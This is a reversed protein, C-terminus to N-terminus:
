NKTKAPSERTTIPPVRYVIGYRVQGKDGEEDIKRIIAELETGEVLHPPYTDTIIAKNETFVTYNKFRCGKEFSKLTARKPYLKIELRSIDSFGPCDEDICYEKAPFYVRQCGHCIQVRIKGENLPKIEGIVRKPGRSLHLYERLRRIKIVYYDKWTLIKKRQLYDQITPALNKKGKIGKKTRVWTALSAAWSGYSIALIDEGPEAMDLVNSLNLPTNGAYANGIWRSLLTPHLKEKREQESLTLVRLSDLVFKKHRKNIYEFNEAKKVFAEPNKRMESKIENTLEEPHLFTEIVATPRFTQEVLKAYPSHGTIWKFDHLTKDHKKLMKQCTGLVLRMYARKTTSGFYTPDPQGERRWFDQELGADGVIDIIEAAANSRHNDNGLIFSGSGCGVLIELSDGVAGGSIDSGVALGYDIEGSGIYKTLISVAEMGSNCALELDAVHQLNECAGFFAALYLGSSGVAYPGSEKGFFSAKIQKPDIEARKVANRGAEWGLTITDEDLGPVTKEESWLGQTYYEIRNKNERRKVLEEVRFRRLPIYGGWGLICVRSGNHKRRKIQVNSPRKATKNRL